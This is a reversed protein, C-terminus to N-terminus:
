GSRFIASMDRPLLVHSTRDVFTPLLFLQKASLFYTWASHAREYYACLFCNRTDILLAVAFRQSDV